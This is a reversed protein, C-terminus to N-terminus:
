EAGYFVAGNESAAAFVSDFLSKVDKKDSRALAHGSRDGIEVACCERCVKRHLGVLKMVSGLKGYFVKGCPCQVVGKRREGHVYTNRGRPM